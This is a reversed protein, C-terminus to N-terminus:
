KEQILWRQDLTTTIMVIIGDLLFPLQVEKVTSDLANIGNSTRVELVVIIDVFVFIHPLVSRIKLIIHNRGDDLSVLVLGDNRTKRTVNAVIADKNM